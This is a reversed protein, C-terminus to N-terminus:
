TKNFLDGQRSAFEAARAARARAEAVMDRAQGLTIDRDGLDHYVLQTGTLADLNEVEWCEVDMQGEIEDLIVRERVHPDPAEPALYFVDDIAMSLAYLKM